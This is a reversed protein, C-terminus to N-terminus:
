PELIRAALDPVPRPSASSTKFRRHISPNQGFWILAGPIGREAAARIAQMTEQATRSVRTFNDSISKVKQLAALQLAALQLAALPPVCYGKGERTLSSYTEALLYCTLPV